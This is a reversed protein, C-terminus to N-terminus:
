NFAMFMCINKSEIVGGHSDKMRNKKLKSVGGRHSHSSERIFIQLCHVRGEPVGHPVHEGHVILVHVVPIDVLDPFHFFIMLQKVPFVWFEHWFDIVLLYINLFM